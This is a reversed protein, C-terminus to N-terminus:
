AGQWAAEGVRMRLAITFTRPYDLLADGEVSPVERGVPAHSVNPIVDYVAMLRGEESRAGRVFLTRYGCAEFFWVEWVLLFVEGLLVRVTCLLVFRQWTCAPARPPLERSTLSTQLTPVGRRFLPEQAEM